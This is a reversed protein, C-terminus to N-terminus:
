EVLQSSEQSGFYGQYMVRSEGDFIHVKEEQVGADLARLIRQVGPLPFRLGFDLTTNDTRKVRM